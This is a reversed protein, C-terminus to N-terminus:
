KGEEPSAFVEEMMRLTARLKRLAFRNKSLTARDSLVTADSGQILFSLCQALHFVVDDPEIGQERICFDKIQASDAGTTIHIKRRRSKM